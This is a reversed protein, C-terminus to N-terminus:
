DACPQGVDEGVKAMGQAWLRGAHDSQIQGLIFVVNNEYSATLLEGDWHHSSPMLAKGM